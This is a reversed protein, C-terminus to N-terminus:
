LFLNLLDLPNGVLFTYFLLFVIVVFVMFLFLWFVLRRFAALALNFVDRPTNRTPVIMPRDPARMANRALGMHSLIWGAIGATIFGFIFGAVFVTQDHDM